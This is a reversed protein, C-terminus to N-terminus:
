PSVRDMVEAWRLADVAPAHSTDWTARARVAAMGYLTLRRIVQSFHLGTEEALAFIARAEAPTFALVVPPTADPVDSRHTLTLSPRSAADQAERDM